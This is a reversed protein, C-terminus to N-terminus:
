SFLRNLRGCPSPMGPPKPHPLFGDVTNRRLPRSSPWSATGNRGTFSRGITPSCTEGIASAEAIEDLKKLRNEAEQNMADSPGVLRRLEALSTAGRIADILDEKTLNQFTTM